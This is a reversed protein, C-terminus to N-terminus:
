KDDLDECISLATFKYAELTKSFYDSDLGAKEKLSNLFAEKDQLQEWVVPLYVARHEKEILIIGYPYIKNLLDKEDKFDIREIESLLSISLELEACEQPLLPSFRSDRFAANQANDIIDLILPKTPYVSGICGRLVGKSKLTVFSAGYQALVAPIERPIFEENNFGAIISAKVLNILYNHYNKKIYDNKRGNCMFWSGYGVVKNKDQSVDGSNYMEARIMSCGKKNAFDVLGKIVCSGCAHHSELFDIQGTEIITATYADLQRAQEQTYYHSLDSSIVFSSNEWYTEILQSIVRYDCNGVLIPVIRIKKCIKKINKVFEAASLKQPSFLQQLFPLQVEIAHEREFAENAIISPFKESIEQILKNNVELNGLPTEFFSYSPFALNNFREQHSPAIIFINESVELHQFGAMAAHGSYVYGAHPVIIAKSKYEVFLDQKYSDLLGSLEDAKEPYFIGAFTVEKNM